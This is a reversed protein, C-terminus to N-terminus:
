VLYTEFVNGTKPLMGINGQVDLSESWDSAIDGPSAVPKEHHFIRRYRQCHVIDRQQDLLGIIGKQVSDERCWSFSFRHM